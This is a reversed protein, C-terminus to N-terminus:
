PAAGTSSGDSPTAGAEDTTGALPVPQEAVVYQTVDFSHPAEGERWNVTVTVRRIQSEFAPKLVPYVYSMAQSALGDVDGGGSLLEEPSANTLEDIPSAPDATPPEGTPMAAGEAGEEGEEDMFMTDPMVIPQIEWTCEFGDVEADECCEDNGSDMLAPLGEIAIQEEVEGMKCRALLAAVGTKRARAAMKIAGAESSFIATLCLAMIAVAVMVELLTFGRRSM